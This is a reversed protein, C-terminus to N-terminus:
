FGGAENAKEWVFPRRVTDSGFNARLLKKGLFGVVPYLRGMVGEFATGYQKVNRTYFMTRKIFDVGCGIVDGQRYSGDGYVRLSEWSNEFLCGTLSEWARTQAGPNPHGPMREFLRAPLTTLGIAIQNSYITLKNNVNAQVHM